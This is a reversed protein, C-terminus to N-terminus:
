RSSGDVASEPAELRGFDVPYAGVVQNDKVEVEMRSLDAKQLLVLYGDGDREKVMETLTLGSDKGLYDVAVQAVQRQEQDLEWSRVCAGIEEDYSYGAPGLCGHEDRNGGILDGNSEPHISATETKKLLFLGSTGAVVVILGLILFLSKNKM